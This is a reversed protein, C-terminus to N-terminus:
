YCERKRWYISYIQAYIFGVNMIIMFIKLIMINSGLAFIGNILSFLLGLLHFSNGLNFGSLHTNNYYNYWLYYYVIEFTMVYECRDGRQGIEMRLFVFSGIIYFYVRKIMEIIMLIKLICLFYNLKIKNEEKEHLEFFMLNFQVLYGIICYLIQKGYFAILSPSKKAYRKLYVIYYFIFYIISLSIIGFTVFFTFFKNKNYLFYLSIPYALVFIRAILTERICYFFVKLKIEIPLIKEEESADNKLNIDESM